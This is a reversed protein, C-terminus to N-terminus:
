ASDISCAAWSSVVHEEESSDGEKESEEAITSSWTLRNM